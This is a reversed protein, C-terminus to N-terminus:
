SASANTGGGGGTTTSISPPAPPAPPAATAANTGTDPAPGGAATAETETASTLAAITAENIVDLQGPAAAKAADAIDTSLEVPAATLAALTIEGAREPQVSVAATTVQVAFNPLLGIVQATIESASSPAVSAAANVISAVQEPTAACANTESDLQEIQVELDYDCVIRIAALTINTVDAPNSAILASVATPLLSAQEAAIQRLSETATLGSNAANSVVQEMSLGQNIDGRVDALAIASVSVSVSLATAILTKPLSKM